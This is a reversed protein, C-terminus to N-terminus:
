TQAPTLAPSARPMGTLAHLKCSIGGLASWSVPILDVPAGAAIVAATPPVRLLHTAGVASAHAGSSQSALPTAWM